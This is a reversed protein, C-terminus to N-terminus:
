PPGTSSMLLLPILSPIIVCCRIRWKLRNVQKASQAKLKVKDSVKQATHTDAGGSDVPRAVPTASSQRTLAPIAKLLKLNVLTNSNSNSNYTNQCVRFKRYGYAWVSLGVNPRAYEDSKLECSLVKSVQVQLYILALVTASLATFANIVHFAQFVYRYAQM